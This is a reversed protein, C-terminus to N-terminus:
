KREADGAIFNNQDLFSEVKSTFPQRNKLCTSSRHQWLTVDYIKMM